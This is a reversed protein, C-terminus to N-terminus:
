RRSGEPITYFPLDKIIGFQEESTGLHVRRSHPYWANEARIEALPTDACLADRRVFFANVGASDCGILAYNLTNGLAAYASLSANAYLGSEHETHRTFCEKYPVTILREPGFSANYEIVVVRPNVATVAKWLWYDVGDVDIILLDIEGQMGGAIFFSNINECTMFAQVIRPAHAM